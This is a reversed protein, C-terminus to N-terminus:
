ELLVERFTDRHKRNVLKSAGVGAYVATGAEGGQSRRLM